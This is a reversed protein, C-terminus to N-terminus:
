EPYINLYNHHHAELSPWIFKPGIGDGGWGEMFMERWYTVLKKVDESVKDDSLIIKRPCLSFVTRYTEFWKRITEMLQAKLTEDPGEDKVKDIQAKVRTRLDGGWPTKIPEKSLESRSHTQLTCEESKRNPSSLHPSGGYSSSMDAGLIQMLLLKTFWHPHNCRFATKDGVLLPKFSSKGSHIALLIGDVRTWVRISMIDGYAYADMPSHLGHHSLYGYPM